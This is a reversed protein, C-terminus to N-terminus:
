NVGSIWDLAFISFDLLDIHGDPPQSVDCRYNWNPSESESLWASTFLGLDDYDVDCDRDFDGVSTMGGTVVAVIQVDDIGWYWDWYANYYHWRIRVNAAGDAGFGSLSFEKLGADNVYQYRAVNQWGADNVNIDVDGIEDAYYYFDHKFRLKVDSMNTCDISHTILQEDMDQYGAYDSDVIMFVGTWYPSTRNKPNDWRWTDTSSGGDSIM